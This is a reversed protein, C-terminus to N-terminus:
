CYIYQIVIEFDNLIIRFERHLITLNEKEVINLEVLMKWDVYVTLFLENILTIERILHSVFHELTRNIIM